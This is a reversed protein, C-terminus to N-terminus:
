GIVYGEVWHDEDLRYTDISFGEPEGNFGSLLSLKSVAIKAKSSSSYVGIFKVDGASNEHQLVFVNEM